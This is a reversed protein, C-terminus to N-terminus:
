LSYIIVAFFIVIIVMFALIMLDNVTKQEKRYFGYIIFILMVLPVLILINFSTTTQFEPITTTTTPATTTTTTTPAVYEDSLALFDINNSDLTLNLDCFGDTESDACNDSFDTFTPNTWYNGGIEAGDSYIRTGSQKTTNWYNFLATDLTIVTGNFLNNYFHNYQVNEYLYLESGYFVNNRITNNEVTEFYIAQGSDFGSFTNDEIINNIAEDNGVVLGIGINTGLLTNNRITNNDTYVAISTDSIDIIINDEIINNGRVMDIGYSSSTSIFNNQVLSENGIVMGNDFDIINCNRITTNQSYDEIGYGLGSGILSYGQCDLIVDDSNVVICTNPPATLNQTVFYEGSSNIAYGCSSIDTAKVASMILFLPLLFFLSKEIRQYEM